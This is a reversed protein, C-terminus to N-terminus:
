QSQPPSGNTKLQRALAERDEPSLARILDELPLGKLREEAPLGKVREEASLGKVREEAPLSELLQEVTKRAYEKLEDSMTEEEDYMTFLQNLVTSADPSRPRYHERGYRRLDQRASFLHLMANPEAQPLQGAVIVRIRLALERIEYVGDRLRTLAVQQALNHPFRACVAFLRVEAAPLMEESTPGSQKRYNVFHGVLEWLAEEDLAEQRSKFTVLNHAALEEFGDPLTVPLDGPGTRLLALDLYQQRQSLDLEPRVNIPTNWFLDMWSLGFLRHLPRPENM